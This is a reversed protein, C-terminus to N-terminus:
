NRYAYIVGLAPDIYQTGGAAQTATRRLLLNISAHGSISQSLVLDIGHSIARFRYGYTERGFGPDWAYAAVGIYSELDGQHIADFDGRLWHGAIGVTRSGDLVWRAQVDVGQRGQAFVAGDIGPQDAVIHAQTRREAHVSTGVDFRPSLRVMAGVEARFRWGNRVPVRYWDRDVTVAARVAPHGAGLGLRHTAGLAVGLDLADLGPHSAFHEVSFRSSASLSDMDAPYRREEFTGEVQSRWDGVRSASDSAHGLNDIWDLSGAASVATDAQATAALLLSLPLGALILRVRRRWHTLKM